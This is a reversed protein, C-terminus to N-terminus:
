NLNIKKAKVKANGDIKVNLSKGKLQIDTGEIKLRKGKLDMNGKEDMRISGSKGTRLIIKGDSKIIVDKNGDMTVTGNKDIIISGKEGSKITVDSQSDVTVSGDKDIEIRGKKRSQSLLIKESEAKIEDDGEFSITGDSELRCKSDGNDLEMKLSIKEDVSIFVYKKSTLLGETEYFEMALNGPTKLKVGKMQSDSAGQGEVLELGGTLFDSGMNYVSGLCVPRDPDGDEFAIIVEDGPRPMAYLGHNEGAFPMMTRIWCTYEPRELLRKESDNDWLFRIKIRGLRESDAKTESTPAIVVARHFGSIKPKSLEQPPYYPIDSENTFVDLRYEHLSGRTCQCSWKVRHVRFAKEGIAAVDGTHAGILPKTERKPFLRSSIRIEKEAYKMSCGIIELLRNGENEDKHHLQRYVAPSGEHIEYVAAPVIEPPDDFPRLCDSNRSELICSNNSDRVEIWPTSEPPLQYPAPLDSQSSRFVVGDRNTVFHIGRTECMRLLFHLDNEAYQTVYDISEQSIAPDYTITEVGYISMRNRYPALVADLIAQLNNEGATENNDTNISFIRAQGGKHLLYLPHHITLDFFFDKKEPIEGKEEFFKREEAVYGRYETKIQRPFSFHAMDVAEPDFCLLVKKKLLSKEPVENEDPFELRLRIRFPRILSDEVEITRLYAQLNERDGIALTFFVPKSNESTSTM